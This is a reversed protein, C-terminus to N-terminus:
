MTALSFPTTIFSNTISAGFDERENNKWYANEKFKPIAAVGVRKTAGGGMRQFSAEHSHRVGLRSFKGNRLVSATTYHVEAPRSVPGLVM